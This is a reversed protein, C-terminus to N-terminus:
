LRAPVRPTEIRTLYATQVGDSITNPLPPVKEITRIPHRIAWVSADNWEVVQDLLPAHMAFPDNFYDVGSSPLMHSEGGGQGVGRLADQMNKPFHDPTDICLVQHSQQIRDWRTLFTMENWKYDKGNPLPADLIMKVLCRMWTGANDTLKEDFLLFM